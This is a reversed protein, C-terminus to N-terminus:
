ILMLLMMMMMLTLMLMLLGDEVYCRLPLDWGQATKPRTERDFSASGLRSTNVFSQFFRPMQATVLFGTNPRLAHKNHQTYECLRVFFRPLVTRLSDTATDSVSQKGQQAAVRSTRTRTCRGAYM